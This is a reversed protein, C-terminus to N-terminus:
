SLIQGRGPFKNQFQSDTFSYLFAFDYFFSLQGTSNTTKKEDINKKM